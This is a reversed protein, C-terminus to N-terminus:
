RLYRNRMKSLVSAVGPTRQSRALNRLDAATSPNLRVQGHRIRDVRSIFAAAVDSLELGEAVYYFYLYPSENSCNKISEQCHIAQAWWYVADETNRAKWEVEGLVTCISSKRKCKDLGQRLLTRARDYAGLRLSAMGGWQYCADLDSYRPALTEAERAADENRGANLPDLVRQAESDRWFEREEIEERFHPELCKRVYDEEASDLGPPATRPGERPKLMSLDLVDRSFPVVAADPLRRDWWWEDGLVRLIPNPPFPKSRNVGENSAVWRWKDTSPNYEAVLMGCRPCFARPLVNGAMSDLAGPTHEQWFAERWEFFKTCKGCRISHTAQPATGAPASTGAGTKELWNLLTYEEDTSESSSATTRPSSTMKLRPGMRGRFLWSFFSM